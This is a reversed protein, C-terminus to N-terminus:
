HTLFNKKKLQLFDYFFFPVSFGYMKVSIERLYLPLVPMVSVTKVIRKMWGGSLIERKM